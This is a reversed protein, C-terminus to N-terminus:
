FLWRKGGFRNGDIGRVSKNKNLISDGDSIRKAIRDMVGWM